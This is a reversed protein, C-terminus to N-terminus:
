PPAEVSPLENSTLERLWQQLASSDRPASGEFDIEWVRLTNDTASSVIRTCDDNLTLSLIRASHGVLTRAQGSKLDWVRIVGDAFGAAIISANPSAALRIPWSRADDYITVVNEGDFGGLQIRGGEGGSVWSGDAGFVEVQWVRGAHRALVTDSQGETQWGRVNDDFGAAVLYHNGRWAVDNVESGHLPAFSSAGTGVHVVVLEKGRGALALSKGDPSFLLANADGGLSTTTPIAVPRDREMRWLTLQSREGAAALANGNPSLALINHMDNTAESHLLRGDWSRFEVRDDVSVALVDAGIAVVDGLVGGPSAILRLPPRPGVEYLNGTSDIAALHGGDGGSVRQLPSSGPYVVSAWPAIAWSRFQGAHEATTLTDANESFIPRVTIASTHGKFRRHEGTLTNLVHVVGDAGGSALLLGDPSFQVHYQNPAAVVVDVAGTAVNAVLVGGRTALALRQGDSSFTAEIIDHRDIAFVKGSALSWVCVGDVGHGFIHDGSDDFELRVPKVSCPALRESRQLRAGRLVTIRGNADGAAVMNERMHSTMFRASDDQPTPLWCVNLSQESTDCVRLEGNEMLLVIGLAGLSFEVVRDSDSTVRVTEGSSLRYLYQDEGRTFALVDQDVSLEFSYGDVGDVVVVTQGTQLNVRRIKHDFWFGLFENEGPLAYLRYPGQTTTTVIRTAVGLAAADAALRQAEYQSGGSYAKLWAITQTPDTALLSSANALVARNREVSASRLASEARDRERLVRTLMTLAVIAILVIGVASVVTAAAHRRLWRVLLERRTYQHTGVLQGNLYRRLDAAFERASAYRGEPEPELARRAIAGLEPPGNTTSVQPTSGSRLRELIKTTGDAGHPANGEILEFLIGGLAYVDASYGAPEGRAQEPAMYKPTGVVEGLQTIATQANSRYATSALGSPEDIRKALGWDIVLTEGFEGIMINAPKLDRHVIGRSHAYAMAEAATLLHPILALRAHLGDAERILRKLPLGSVLKMTYFPQGDPWRGADYIPVIGPHELKAAISAERIFREDGSSSRSQLHKVAVVRDLRRDRVRLVVGLGGRGEEGELEYRSPDTVSSEDSEALRARSGVGPDNRPTPATQTASGIGTRSKENDDTM